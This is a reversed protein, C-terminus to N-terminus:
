EPRFKAALESCTLLGQHLKGDVIFTPVLYIKLKLMAQQQEKMLGASIRTNSLCANVKKRSYGKRVILDILFQQPDSSAKWSQQEEFIVSSLAIMKEGSNGGLCRVLIASELAGQDDLYSRLYLKVEGTDVYKKKFKLFEERHFKRCLDCTFSSYIIVTHPATEDGLVIETLGYENPIKIKKLEELFSMDGSELVAGSSNELFFAMWGFLVCLKLM